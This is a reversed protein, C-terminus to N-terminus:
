FRVEYGDEPSVWIVTQNKAPQFVGDVSSEVVVEDGVTVFALCIEHGFFRKELAETKRRLIASQAATAPAGQIEFSASEFDEPRAVACVQNSKITVPTVDRMTILPGVSLLATAPSVIGGGTSVEYGALMKCSKTEPNPGYCQLKGDSAPTIPSPLRGFAPAANARGFSLQPSNSFVWGIGLGVLVVGFLLGAYAVRSM